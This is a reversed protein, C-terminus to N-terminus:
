KPPMDRPICTHIHSFSSKPFGIFLNCNHRVESPSWPTMCVKPVEKQKISERTYNKNNKKGM